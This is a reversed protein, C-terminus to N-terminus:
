SRSRDRLYRSDRFSWDTKLNLLCHHKGGWSPALHRRDIMARMAAEPNKFTVTRLCLCVMISVGIRFSESVMYVSIVLTAVFLTNNYDTQLEISPRNHSLLACRMTIAPLLVEVWDPLEQLMEGLKFLPQIFGHHQLHKDQGSLHGCWGCWRWQHCSLARDPCSSGHPVMPDNEGM